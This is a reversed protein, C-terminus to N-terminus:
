DEKVIIFGLVLTKVVSFKKPFVANKDLCPLFYFTIKKFYFGLM